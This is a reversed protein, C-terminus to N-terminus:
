TSMGLVYLLVLRQLLHLKGMNMSPGNGSLNRWVDKDNSFVQGIMVGLSNKKRM